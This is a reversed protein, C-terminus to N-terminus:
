FAEKINETFKKQPLQQVHQWKEIFRAILEIKQLKVFM